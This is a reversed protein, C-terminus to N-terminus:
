AIGKGILIFWWWYEVDDINGAKVGRVGIMKETLGVCYGVTRRGKRGKELVYIGM